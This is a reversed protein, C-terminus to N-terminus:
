KLPKEWFMAKGMEPDLEYGSFGHKVYANQAVKNGELVELTIKAAGRQRAVAEIEDLMKQSLGLGRFESNVAFDHINIVPRCKFTSFGEFCNALGAPKGDVFCLVTFANPVKALAEVLHTRTHESLAEAGGMPDSAYNDLLEVLVNADKPNHYDAIRFEISM